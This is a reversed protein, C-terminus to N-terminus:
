FELEIVKGHEKNKDDFEIVIDRDNEELISIDVVNPQENHLVGIQIGELILDNLLKSYEKGKGENLAMKKDFFDEEMIEDINIEEALQTTGNVLEIEGEKIYFNNIIRQLLDIVLLSVLLIAGHIKKEYYCYSLVIMLFGFFITTGKSVIKYQNYKEIVEGEEVEIKKFVGVVILSIATILYAIIAALKLYAM